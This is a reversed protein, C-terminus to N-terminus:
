CSAACCRREPRDVWARGQRGRGATQHGAAVLTWEPTGAAAMALATANTSETVEDWRVPATLGVAELARRLADESLM